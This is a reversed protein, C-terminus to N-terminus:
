TGYHFIPQAKNAGAYALTMCEPRSQGATRQQTGKTLLRVPRELCAARPADTEADLEGAPLSGLRRLFEDNWLERMLKVNGAGAKASLPLNTCIM